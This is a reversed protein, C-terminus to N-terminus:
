NAHQCRLLLCELHGVAFIIPERIPLLFCELRGIAFISQNAHQRGLLLYELRGVDLNIPELTPWTIFPM